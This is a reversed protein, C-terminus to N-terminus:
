AGPETNTNAKSRGDSNQRRRSIVAGTVIPPISVVFLFPAGVTIMSAIVMGPADSEPHQALFRKADHITYTVVVVPWLFAIAFIALALVWGPGKRRRIFSEALYGFGACTTVFVLIAIALRLWAMM